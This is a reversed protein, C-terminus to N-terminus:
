IAVDFLAFSIEMKKECKNHEFVSYYKDKYYYCIVRDFM